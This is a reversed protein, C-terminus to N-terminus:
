LAAKFSKQKAKVEIIRKVAPVVTGMVFFSGLSSIVVLTLFSAFRPDILALVSFVIVSLTLGFANGCAMKLIDSSSNLFRSVIKKAGRVLIFAIIAYSAILGLVNMEVLVASQLQTYAIYFCLSLILLDVVRFLFKNNKIILRGM